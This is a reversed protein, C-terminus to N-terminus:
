RIPPAAEARRAPDAADVLLLAIEVAAEAAQGTPDSEPDFATLSAAGVPLSAAIAVVARGLDARTLGGPVAFSNVRGEAPDLVDLDLHLYTATTARGISTLVSPLQTQLDAARVQRVRSQDLAAAELPDLDRAGLLAVSAEPVPRFQPIGASLQTWCRGTVVALAMGDLFGGRTTEPTNFDGHADFWIIGTSAGLGAVCGLAAPGCNGSLVLPFAGISRAGQVAEAVGAALDFATRIEARWSDAGAELVRVHVQHGAAALRDPLGARLLYEPGAGMRKGRHASDYPVAILEIHM